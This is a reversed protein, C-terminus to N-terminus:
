INGDCSIPLSNNFGSGFSGRYAKLYLTESSIIIYVLEHIKDKGFCIEYEGNLYENVSKIYLQNSSKLSWSGIRDKKNILGEKPPIIPISCIGDKKFRLINSFLLPEINQNKYNLIEIKWTEKTLYLEVGRKKCSSSLLLILFFILLLISNKVTIRSSNVKRKKLHEMRM